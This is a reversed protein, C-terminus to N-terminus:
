VQKHRVCPSFVGSEYHERIINTYGVVYLCVSRRLTVHQAGQALMSVKEKRAASSNILDLEDVQPIVHQKTSAFCIDAGM